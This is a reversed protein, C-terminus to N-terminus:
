SQHAQDVIKQAIGAMSQSIQVIRIQIL